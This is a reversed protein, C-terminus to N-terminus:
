CNSRMANLKHEPPLLRDRREMPLLRDRIDYWVEDPECELGLELLDMVGVFEFHVANGDSNKYKLQAKAVRENPSQM